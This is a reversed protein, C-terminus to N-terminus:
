LKSDTLNIQNSFETKLYNLLKTACEDCLDMSLEQNDYQSPWGFTLWLNGNCKRKKHKDCLRVYEEKRYPVTVKKM